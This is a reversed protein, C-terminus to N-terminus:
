FGLNVGFTVSRTIPFTGLDLGFQTDANGGVSPDLGEYKTITFVNNTSAFIKLKEMRLKSLLAAPFNYSLTINQMRFYSGKEVYFSNTNSVTSFNAANEFIPITAGQNDPTWSEKVRESISAGAFLPYFDTFLKSLNFIDNGTQLFMYSELEFSAYNLKFNLGGTFKPVPSGLYTRDLDNIQNDGNLDEYRFRGPAKDPQAPSSSVESASGFLGAVKYGYFSSISHNLQNRIPNIGRYGPNITSIYTAGSNLEVIENHLFGGNVTVEYTLPGADGRTIVQIDVGQNVMKGVNLAPVAAFNGNEVTQPVQLILDETNKKWLDFVV